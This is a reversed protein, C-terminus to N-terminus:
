SYALVLSWGPQLLQGHLGKPVLWSEVSECISNCSDLSAISLWQHKPATQEAAIDLQCRGELGSRNVRGQWLGFVGKGSSGPAPSLIHNESSTLYPQSSQRQQGGGCGPSSSSLKM